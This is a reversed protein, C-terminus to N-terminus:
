FDFEFFFLLFHLFFDHTSEFIDTVGDQAVKSHTKIVELKLFSGSTAVIDLEFLSFLEEKLIKHKQKSEKQRVRILIM